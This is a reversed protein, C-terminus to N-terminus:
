FCADNIEVSLSPCPTCSSSELDIVCDLIDAGRGSSAGPVSHLIRLAAFFKTLCVDRSGQLLVFPPPRPGSRLLHLLSIGGTHRLRRKVRGM